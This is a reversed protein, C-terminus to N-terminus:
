VAAHTVTSPAPLTLAPPLATPQRRSHRRRARLTWCSPTCGAHHLRIVLRGADGMLRISCGRAARSSWVTCVSMVRPWLYEGRGKTSDVVHMVASRSAQLVAAWVLLGTAAWPQWSKWSFAPRTMQADAHIVIIASLTTPLSLRGSEAASYCAQGPQCDIPILATRRADYCM